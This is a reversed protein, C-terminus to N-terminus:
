SFDGQHVGFVGTGQVIFTLVDVAEFTTTIVPAAGQPWHYLNGYDLTFAGSGQAVYLIYTGGQKFNTPNQLTANAQLLIIRKPKEGMDWDVAGTVYDIPAFEDIGLKPNRASHTQPGSDRDGGFTRARVEMTYDTSPTGDGDKQNMELSYTWKNNATFVERRLSGDANLVRIHYDRFDRSPAGTGAGAPESGFEFNEGVSTQRWAFEADDDVYDVGNIQTANILELGAVRIEEPKAEEKTKERKFIIIENVTPLATFSPATFVAANIERLDLDVTFGDAQISLALTDILFTKASWTIGNRVYDQAIIDGARAQLAALKFGARVTVQQRMRLLAISLLHQAQNVDTVVPLSMDGLREIGGDETVFGANIISPIDMEQWKRAPETFTGRMGNILVNGRVKPAIRPEQGTLLDDEDLTVTAAEWIGAKMTYQGNVHQITGGMADLLRDVIDPAGMDTSILGGITFGQTDCDNAAQTTDTDNMEATPRSLGYVTNTFYDRLCLAPNTSYITTSTRTDFVKAGKIITQQAEPTETQFKVANFATQIYLYALGRLRHNTTWIDTGVENILTQDAAQSDAGLHEYIDIWGFAADIEDVRGSGDRNITRGSYLVEEFEEIEHAAYVYVMHTITTNSPKHAFVLRGNVLARGYVIPAALNPAVINEPITSRGLREALQRRNRRISNGLDSLPKITFTFSGM